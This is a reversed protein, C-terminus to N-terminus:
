AAGYYLKGDQEFVPLWGACVLSNVGGLKSLNGLVTFSTNAKSGKKVMM